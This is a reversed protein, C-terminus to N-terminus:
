TKVTSDLYIAILIRNHSQANPDTAQLGFNHTGPHSIAFLFHSLPIIDTLVTHLHPHSHTYVAVNMDFSQKLSETDM